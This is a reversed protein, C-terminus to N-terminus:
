QHYRQQKDLKKQQQEMLSHIDEFKKSIDGSEKHAYRSMSQKKSPPHYERGETNTLTTFDKEDDSCQVSIYDDDEEENDSNGESPQKRETHKTKVKTKSKSSSAVPEKLKEEKKMLRGTGEETEDTVISNVVDKLKGVYVSLPTGKEDGGVSHDLKVNVLDGLFDMIAHVVMGVLGPGMGHTFHNFSENCEYYHEFM